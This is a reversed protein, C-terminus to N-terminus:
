TATGFLRAIYTQVPAQITVDLMSTNIPDRRPVVSVGGTGNAYGNKTAEAIAAHIAGTPKRPLYVVGALAAADAARQIRVLNLEYWAVDLALGAFGLLITMVLAVIVLTQGREESAFRM